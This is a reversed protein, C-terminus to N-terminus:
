CVLAYGLDINLGMLPVETVSSGKRSQGKQTVGKQAVRGRESVGEASMHRTLRDLIDTAPSPRTSNQYETNGSVRSRAPQRSSGVEM